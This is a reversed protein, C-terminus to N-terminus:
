ATANMSKDGLPHVCVGPLFPTNSSQLSHSATHAPPGGGGEEEERERERERSGIIPKGRNVQQQQETVLDDGVRKCGWPSYGVLSRQGHSKRPFFSYQLPNGNGEGPSRGSGPISGSDGANCAPEKGSLWQPLGRHQIKVSERPCLSWKWPNRSYRHRTSVGSYPKSSQSM